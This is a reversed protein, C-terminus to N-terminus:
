GSKPQFDHFPTNNNDLSYLIMVLSVSCIFMPIPGFTWMLLTAAFYIARLGLQWYHSGEIVAQEVYEEPVDAQPMSMLFNAHVYSRACQIFAGFSLWFFIQISIFKIYTVSSSTSGYVFRTAPLQSSSSGVWTGILSTLALSTSAMFTAASLCNSLVTFATGRNDVDVQMTKSVWARRSHNEFGIVTNAPSRICRYLLTLHYGFMILLGSPVLVIDLYDKKWMM